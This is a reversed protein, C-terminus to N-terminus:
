AAQALRVCGCADTAGDPSEGCGSCVILTGYGSCTGCCQSGYENELYGDTACAECDVEVLAPLNTLLPM